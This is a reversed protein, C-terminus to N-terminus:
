IGALAHSLWCAFSPANAFALNRWPSHSCLPSFIYCPSFVYMASTMSAMANNAVKTAKVAEVNSAMVELSFCNQELAFRQNSKNTLQKELVKKRKLDLLAGSKNKAKSKKVASAHLKKIRLELHAEAKEMIRIQEKIKGIAAAPSASAGGGGQAPKRAPKKAGFFNM